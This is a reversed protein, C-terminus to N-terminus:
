GLGFSGVALSFERQAEAATHASCRCCTVYSLSNVDRIQKRRYTSESTQHAGLVLLLLALGGLIWLFQSSQVAGALDQEEQVDVQLAAQDSTDM